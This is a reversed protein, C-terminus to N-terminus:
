LSQNWALLAGGATPTVFAIGRAQYTRNFADAAYGAHVSAVIKVLVYASVAGMMTGKEMGSWRRDDGNGHDMHQGTMWMMPALLSVEIATYAIGWGLNEAYLNGFDIPLPQLSLAVALGPSRYTSVGFLFQHGPHPEPYEGNTTAYPPPGYGPAPYAPPPYGPPVVSPPPTPPPPSPSAVESPPAPTEQGRAIRPQVLSLSAGVLATAFSALRINQRTM